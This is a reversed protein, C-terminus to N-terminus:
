GVVEAPTMASRLALQNQGWLEQIAEVIAEPQDYIVNHGSREAVIRRGRTSLAAIEVQLNQWASEYEERVQPGFSPPLANADLQGHSIVTLLIDGLTSVPQTQAAYVTETEAVLADAHSKSSAMVGQMKAVLEKSLKGNDGTSILGPNLAFIGLRSMLKMIGMMGKMSNVMKVVPEPFYKVQQEHASDVMVLGAVEDPYKAAFQRAVPGGLSHGVLIYPGPIRANTLMTHLEIAMTYADRPHPSPDSWGLGARDYVVVRTHKAIAPRVLEWSLGIGGAGADFVVTPTGTGETHM